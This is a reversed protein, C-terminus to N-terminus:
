EDLDQSGRRLLMAAAAGSIAAVAFLAVRYSGSAGALASFMLPGIVVGGFTVFGSAGTIEAAKGPPARRALESLQVGNWGIATAGYAAVLPLVAWPSWGPSALALVVGCVCSLLGIAALIRTASWVRDAAIGWLIRGPVAASTACTLALGSAVLSWALGDSLYVVLFSTLSTQVAAFSLGILSLELLRRSGMVARLPRVILALSMRQRAAERVDLAKRTTEASLIVVIGLAASALFAFRWGALLSLAPLVAGALATGAPVGTQKISFTLAMRNPATTRALLESSAVTIPGYGMGVLLAAMPLLFAGSAPAAAFLAIGIACLAVAGQSVRIAGLRAVFAGGVLSGVMAGVYMLAMYVGIWNPTVGLDPALAPALVAPAAGVFSTFIQIALTAALAVRGASRRLRASPPEAPM